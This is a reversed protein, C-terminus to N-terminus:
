GALMRLLLWSGPRHQQMFEDGQARQLRLAAQKFADYWDQGTTWPPDVEEDSGLIERCAAAMIQGSLGSQDGQEFCRFCYYLTYDGYHTLECYERWHEDIYAQTDSMQAPSSCITQILGGLIPTTNVQGHEVAQAYCAQTELLACQRGQNLADPQIEAPFKAEISRAYDTGSEPTWYEQVAYTGDAGHLFTIAVPQTIGSTVALGEASYAFSLQTTTAYVTIQDSDSVMKLLTHAAAQFDCSQYLAQEHAVIAADIAAALGTPKVRVIISGPPEVGGVPTVNGEADAVVPLDSVEGRSCGAGIVAVLLAVAITLGVMGQRDGFPKVRSWLRRLPVRGAAM